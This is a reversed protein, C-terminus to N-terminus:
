LDVSTDPEVETEVGLDALENDDTIERVPVVFNNPKQSSNDALDRIKVTGVDGGFDMEEDETWTLDRFEFVRGVLFEPLDEYSGVGEDSLDFGAKQTLHYVLTMWKSMPNPNVKVNFEHLNDWDASVWNGDDDLKAIPRIEYLHEIYDAGSERYDENMSFEESNVESAVIEGIFNPKAARSEEADDVSLPDAM